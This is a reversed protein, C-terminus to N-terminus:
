LGVSELWEVTKETPWECTDNLNIIVDYLPIPKGAYSTVVDPREDSSVNKQLEPFKRMLDGVTSSFIGTDPLRNFVCEYAAGLDCTGTKNGIRGRFAGRFQARKKRGCKIAESLKMKEKTEM